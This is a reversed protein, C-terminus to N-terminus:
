SPVAFGAVAEEVSPYFGVIRPINSARAIEDVMGKAGAVRLEGGVTKLKRSCTVIIGLATSDVRKIESLDLVIKRVTQRILDEVAAELEQCPRGMTIRGVLQLVVIEPELQRKQIELM